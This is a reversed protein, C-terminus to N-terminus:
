GDGGWKTLLRGVRRTRPVLEVTLLALVILGQLMLVAESPLGISAELADGGVLLVAMLFAVPITAAPRRKAIVAILVSIYGYNPSLGSPLNQDVGTVEIAGALGAVSGAVVLAVIIARATRVGGFAAARPNLGTARLEYGLHTYRLILTLILAIPIAILVGIHSQGLFSPLTASAPIPKTVATGASPDTWVSSAVWDALYFGVFNFMVTTFLENVGWKRKLMAAILGFIAGGGIGALLVALLELGHPLHPFSFAVAVACIAGAYIQGDVGLNVCGAQMAFAIGAGGLLIPCFKDLTLAFSLRSGFSSQVVTNVSQTPSANMLALLGSIILIVLIMALVYLAIQVLMPRIPFRARAASLSEEAAVM